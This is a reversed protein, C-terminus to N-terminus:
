TLSSSIAALEVLEIGNSAEGVLKINKVGSLLMHFGKRLMEHDDAILLRAPQNNKPSM